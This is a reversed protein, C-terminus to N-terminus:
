YARKSVRHPLTALAAQRAETLSLVWGDVLVTRGNIFDDEVMDDVSRGFLKFGRDKSIATRLSEVNSERPTQAIYRAGLQRVRDPGLISLLQPHDLDLGRVDGMQCGSEAFTGALGFVALQLFRRRDVPM